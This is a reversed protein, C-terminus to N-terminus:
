HVMQMPERYRELEPPQEGTGGPEARQGLDFFKRDTVKDAADQPRLEGGPRRSRRHPVECNPWQRPGPGGAPRVHTFHQNFDVPDVDMTEASHCGSCTNVALNFQARNVARANWVLLDPAACGVGGRPVQAQRSSSRSGTATGKRKTQAVQTDIYDGVAATGNLSIDPTQKVTM